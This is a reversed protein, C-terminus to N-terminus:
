SPALLEGWHFGNGVFGLEDGELADEDGGFVRAGRHFGVVANRLEAAGEDGALDVRDECSWGQLAFGTLEAREVAAAAEEAELGSEGFAQDGFVVQDRHGDDGVLGTLVGGDRQGVVLAFRAVDGVDDGRDAAHLLGLELRRGDGLREAIGLHLDTAPGFQGVQLRGHEAGHAGVLNGELRRLHHGPQRRLGLVGEGFLRDIIAVAVDVVIDAM